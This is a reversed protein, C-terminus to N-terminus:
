LKADAVIKKILNFKEEEYEAYTGVIKLHRLVETCAGCMHVNRVCFRGYSINSPLRSGTKEAGCRECPGEYYTM